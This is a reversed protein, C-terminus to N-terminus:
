QTEAANPDRRANGLRWRRVVVVVAADADEADEADDHSVRGRGRGGGGGGRAPGGAGRASANAGAGGGAGCADGAQLLLIVESVEVVAEGVVDVTHLLQLALAGGHHEQQLLLLVRRAPLHAVDPPQVVHLQGVHALGQVVQGVLPGAPLHLVAGQLFLM